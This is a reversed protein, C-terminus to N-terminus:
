VDAAALMVPSGGSSIRVADAAVEQMGPSAMAAQMVEASPFPMQFCQYYPPASGDPGPLFKSVTYPTEGPPIGTKEHLLAVHAAYDADFATADTPHPYLVLLRFM